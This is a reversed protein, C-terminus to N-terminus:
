QPDDQDNPTIDGDPEVESTTLSGQHINLTIDGNRDLTASEDIPYNGDEDVGVVYRTNDAQMSMADGLAHMIPNVAPRPHLIDTSRTSEITWLDERNYQTELDRDYRLNGIRIRGSPLVEIDEDPLVYDDPFQVDIDQPEWGLGFIHEKDKLDESEDPWTGPKSPVLSKVIHDNNCLQLSYLSRYGPNIENDPAQIPSDPKLGEVDSNRYWVNRRTDSMPNVADRDTRSEGSWPQTMADRLGGTRLSKYDSFDSVPRNLDQDNNEIRQMSAYDRRSYHGVHTSGISMGIDRSDTLRADISLKTRSDLRVGANQICYMGLPRVYEICADVPVRDSFYVVDIYGESTHPTVYVSNVPISTDELRNYLITKPHVFQGENDEYGTGAVAEIDFQKLNVEAALMVGDKSGRNRIMSMFYLLVLRNFSVPLRDDYKFGMTDALMWLLWHPCKLPDYLDPINETDYQLKSLCSVFWDVFFQFDTSSKYVEPIPIDELRM